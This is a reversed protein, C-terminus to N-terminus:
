NAKEFLCLFYKYRQHRIDDSIEYRPYNKTWVAQLSSYDDLAKMVSCFAKLTDFTGFTSRQEYLYITILEMPYSTPIRQNTSPPLM